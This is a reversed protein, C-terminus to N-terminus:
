KFMIVQTKDHINFTFSSTIFLTVNTNDSHQYGISYDIGLSLEFNEDNYPLLFAECISPSVIIKSGLIKEIKEIFEADKSVINLHQWKEPSVVLAYPAKATSNKLMAMAKIINVVVEECTEGLDLVPHASSKLGEICAENLGYFIAEEEFKAAKKIAEDLSDFNIDKAGREINDLEWRSLVFTIRTEIMPQVKYIGYFLDDKQKLAMKGTFIGECERGKPPTVKVFKRGSLNNTLISKARGEIESWAKATIPALDKKLFEM